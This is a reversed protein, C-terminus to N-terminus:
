LAFHQEFQWYRGERSILEHHKGREVIRGNEMVCIRDLAALGTMRHTVMILTKCAAVQQQLTLIHQETAADLGEM